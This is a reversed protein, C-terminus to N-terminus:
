GLFLNHMTDIVAFRTPDWYPLRLLESWRLGHKEFINKRTDADGDRWETALRLHEEWTRQKPWTERDLNTIDAKQLRCFSCFNKASHGAFGAAKRLAPLDCVLPIMAVRVFRGMWRLATRTLYLGRTWLMLLEDVLPTLVRNLEDLSPERPGPIIGALYINQPAYRVHIPLNLCAM